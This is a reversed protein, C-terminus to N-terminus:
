ASEGEPNDEAEAAAEADRDGPGDPVVDEIGTYGSHPDAIIRSRIDFGDIAGSTALVADTDALVKNIEAMEKATPSDLAEWKITPEASIGFKPTIESRMLLQYHRQALRTLDHRQISELEEHYSSEDYEGTANFGKPTTGLLKTVPVGAAAAVLQFQTMITADLETLSTDFQQIEDGENIFKVGYNNMLAVWQNMKDIFDPENALAMTTDTKMVTMRKTMALQPAENATREAAYVREYIRQPVSVSGYMYSPKLVDPLTGTRYIILHSKHILKGSVYWYSPEYFDMSAPDYISAGTMQPTIWYPDIQSIGLYSGPTIGDINFPKEYYKPDNSKVQFMAIRIGFVRGMHVFEVMNPMLKLREDAKRIADIVKPDVEDGDNFTIEYGNRVADRAPMVCAKEILWNQSLMACMQYGIFGQSSFFGLIADSIPNYPIASQAWDDIGDMAVGELVPLPQQFSRAIALERAAARTIGRAPMEDTTFVHRPQVMEAHSEPSKKKRFWNM